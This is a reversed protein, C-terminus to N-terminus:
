DSPPAPMRFYHTPLKKRLPTPNILRAENQRAKNTTLATKATSMAPREPTGASAVAIDGATLVTPAPERPEGGLV